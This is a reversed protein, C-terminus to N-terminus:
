KSVAEIFKEENIMLNDAKDFMVEIQHELEEGSHGAANVGYAQSGTLNHHLGSTAGTIAQSDTAANPAAKSQIM